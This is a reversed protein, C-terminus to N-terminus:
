PGLRVAPLRHSSNEGNRAGVADDASVQERRGLERLYAVRQDERLRELIRTAKNAEILDEKREQWVETAHDLIERARDVDETLRDLYTKFTHVESSTFSQNIFGDRFSVTQERRVGERLQLKRVAEMRRGNAEQTRIRADKELQKKLSLVRELRFTFRRV